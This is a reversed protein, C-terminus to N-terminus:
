RINCLAAESATQQGWSGAASCLEARVAASEDIRQQVDLGIVWGIQLQSRLDPGFDWISRFREIAGLGQQSMTELLVGDPSEKRVELWVRMGLLRPDQPFQELATMLDAEVAVDSNEPVLRLPALQRLLLSNQHATAFGQSINANAEASFAASTREINVRGRALHQDFETWDGTESARQQAVDLAFLRVRPDDPYRILWDSIQEPTPISTASPLADNPLLGSTARAESTIQPMSAFAVAGTVVLSSLVFLVAGSLAVPSQQFVAETQNQQHAKLRALLVFGFVAGAIAGGLHAGIDVRGGGVPALPLMSPILVRLFQGQIPGRVSPGLSHVVFMGGAFLGMIAGSAGVSVLTGDNLLFSVCSGGLAGVFYLSLFWRWGVIKELLHGAMVLGVGNMLLHFFNVHLFTCSLMRFWAGGIEDSRILGGMGILTEITPTMFGGGHGDIGLVLELVFILCLIALLGFTVPTPRDPLPTSVEHKVRDKPDGHQTSVSADKDFRGWTKNYRIVVELYPTTASAANPASQVATEVQMPEVPPPELQMPEEPTAPVDVSPVQIQWTAARKVVGLALSLDVQHAGPTAETEALFGALFSGEYLPLGDFTLSVKGDVAFFGPPDFRVAIKM